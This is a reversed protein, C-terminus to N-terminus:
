SPATLEYFVWPLHLIYIYIFYIHDRMYKNAYSVNVLLFIVTETTVYYTTGKVAFVFNRNTYKTAHGSPFVFNRKWSSNVLRCIEYRSSAM